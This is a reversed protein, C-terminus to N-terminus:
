THMGYLRAGQLLYAKNRKDNSWIANNGFSHLALVDM